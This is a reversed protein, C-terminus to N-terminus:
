WINGFPEDKFETENIFYLGYKWQPFMQVYVKKSFILVDIFPSIHLTHM